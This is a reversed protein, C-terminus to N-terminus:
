ADPPTITTSDGVEVATFKAPVPIAVPDAGVPHSLVHELGARLLAVLRDTFRKEVAEPTVIIGLRAATAAFDDCNANPRRMLTPILTQFLSAGSFKRKRQIAGTQRGIIDLATGMASQLAAAVTAMISM